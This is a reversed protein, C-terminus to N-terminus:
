SRRRLLAAGALSLGAALAALGGAGLAPIEIPSPPDGTLIPPPLESDDSVEVYSGGTVEALHRFFDADTVGGLGATARGTEPDVPARLAVSTWFRSLVVGLGALRAIALEQWSGPDFPPGGSSPFGACPGSSSNEGGGSSVALLLEGPAAGPFAAALTDGAACLAEALPTVGDCGEPDLADLAALAATEGVFGGTLDTAADGAFTWVAATSGAAAPHAAFFSAVDARALELADRCRSHGNAPRVALMSGTRDLLVLLQPVGADLTFDADSLDFFVNGSGKVKIRARASSVAPLTVTESGDNATGAALLTPFTRGGDTSLWVDVATAGVPAAATGAPDWTVAVTGSLTEGGDPSTVRFPGSGSDVTLVVDDSGTRGGGPANDRVTLRFTLERDTAPLREGVPKQNVLLDELRPFVRTPGSAPPWARFLPQVGDDPDALPARTGADVQEWSWTLVDGDPDSSATATLEFPTEAPISRDAGASATPAGPNGSGSTRGCSGGGAAYGAIQALSAAHFNADSNGQLNDAGCIGAYALITSGSGPEYATAPAHNDASCAGDAGNWTHGAALQHGIEHAVYDIDFPDNQPSGSGTAGLAKNGSVCVVALHALGGSDTGFVHGVDYGADGIEADLTAQNEVVMAGADGNTYPDTAADTYVLDLNGPVLEFALSLEERYVQGVRHISTVIAALGDAATGGHFATYEGTAAVALRYTRLVAAGEPAAPLDRPAPAEVGCDFRDREAHRRLYSVYLRDDGQWYPDVFWSEGGPVRVAAHLGAPGGWDLHVTAGATDLGVGRYTRLAHGALELQAALGPDMLRVEVLRFREFGGDPRPVALVSPSRELAGAADPPAQDLVAGLAVPELRVAQFAAPRVWPAAGPARETDLAAAPILEWAGDESTAQANAPAAALGLLLVLGPTVLPVARRGTRSRDSVHIM